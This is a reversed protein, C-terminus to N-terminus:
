RYNNFIEIYSFAQVDDGKDACLKEEVVLWYKCKNTANKLNDITKGDVDFNIIKKSMNSDGKM